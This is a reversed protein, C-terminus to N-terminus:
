AAEQAGHGGHGAGGKRLRVGLAIFGLRALLPLLLTALLTAAVLAAATPLTGALVARLGGWAVGYLVFTLLLGGVQRLGGGGAPEVSTAGLYIAAFPWYLSIPILWEAM